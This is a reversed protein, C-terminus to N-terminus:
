RLPYPIVGGANTDELGAHIRRTRMDGTIAPCLSTLNAVSM